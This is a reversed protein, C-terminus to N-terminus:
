VDIGEKELEARLSARMRHLRTKVAGERLGFRRSITRIDDCYWYRRLFIRRNTDDLTSLYRDLIASIEGEPERAPLCEALEEMLPLVEGGRKQAGRKEAVNLALNRVIRGLYASLSQPKAPPISNWLRLYADAVCEEADAHSGLIHEAISLCLRGYQKATAEIASEDRAEYLAIMTADDMAIGGKM